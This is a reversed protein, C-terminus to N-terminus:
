VSEAFFASPCNSWSIESANKKEASHLCMEMKKKPKIFQNRPLEGLDTLQHSSVAAKM